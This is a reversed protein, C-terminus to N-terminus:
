ELFGARHPGPGATHPETSFLKSLMGLMLDYSQHAGTPDSISFTKEGETGVQVRANDGQLKFRLPIHFPRPQEHGDLGLRIEVGALSYGEDDRMFTPNPKGRHVAHYVPEGDRNASTELVSVVPRPNRDEDDRYIEPAELYLRFSKAFEIMFSASRKAYDAYRTNWDTFERNLGTYRGM